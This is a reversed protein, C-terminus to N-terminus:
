HNEGKTNSLKWLMYIFVKFNNKVVTYNINLILPFCKLNVSNVCVFRHLILNRKVFFRPRCSWRCFCFSVSQQRGVRLLSVSLLPYVVAATVRLTLPDPSPNSQILNLLSSLLQDRSKLNETYTDRHRDLTDAINAVTM